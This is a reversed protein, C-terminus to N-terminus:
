FCKASCVASELYGTKHAPDQSFCLRGRMQLGNCPLSPDSPLREFHTSVVTLLLGTVSCATQYVLFALM